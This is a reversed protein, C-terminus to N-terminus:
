CYEGLAGLGAQARRPFTQDKAAKPVASRPNLLVALFFYSSGLVGPVVDKTTAVNTVRPLM